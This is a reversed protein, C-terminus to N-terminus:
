CEFCFLLLVCRKLRYDGVFICPRGVISGLDDNTM